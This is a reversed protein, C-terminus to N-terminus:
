YPVWENQSVIGEKRIDGISYVFMKLSWVTENISATQTQIQIFLIKTTYSTLTYYTQPMQNPFILSIKNTSQKFSNDATALIMCSHQYQSGDARSVARRTLFDSCLIQLVPLVSQFGCGIVVSMMYANIATDSGVRFTKIPKCHTHIQTSRSKNIGYLCKNSIYIKMTM